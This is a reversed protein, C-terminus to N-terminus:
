FPIDDSISQGLTKIESDNEPESPKESEPTKVPKWTNVSAYLEGKKNEQIQINIYDDFIQEGNKNLVDEGTKYDTRKVKTWLTEDNMKETYWIYFQDKNFSISAKVWEVQPKFVKLGNVFIKEKTNNM